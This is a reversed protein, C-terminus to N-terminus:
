PAHTKVETNAQQIGILPITVTTVDLITALNVKM